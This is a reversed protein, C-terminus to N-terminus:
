PAPEETASAEETVVTEETASQEPTAIEETITIEPTTDTQPAGGAQVLAADIAANIASLDFADIEVGNVTLTPTGGFGPVTRGEAEARDVVNQPRPSSMCANYQDVNLGLREVGTRLRNLTFAQAAFQSQWNFLTDHYAWFARPDQEAVCSAARAAEVGGPGGFTGMPVFTFTIEGAKVRDLLQFFVEEHFSMCAPCSFSSYENVRVRAVQPDGLRAYGQDTVSVPVGQYREVVGQPIPADAPLTNVILGILVLVAVVGIAGAILIMRQRRQQQEKERRRQESRSGAKEKETPKTVVSTRREERRKAM